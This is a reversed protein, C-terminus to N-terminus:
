IIQHSFLSTVTKDNNQKCELMIRIFCKNDLKESTDAIANIYNSQETLVVNNVLSEKLSKLKCGLLLICHVTSCPLFVEYLNNEASNFVKRNIEIKAAGDMKISSMDTQCIYVKCGIIRFTCSEVCGFCVDICYM